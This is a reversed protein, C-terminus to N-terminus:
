VVGGKQLVKFQESGSTGEGAWQALVEPKNKAYWLYDKKLGPENGGATAKALDVPSAVESVIKLIQNVDTKKALAVFEETQTATMKKSECIAKLKDLEANQQTEKTQQVEVQLAMAKAKEELLSKYEEQTISIMEVGQQNNMNNVLKQTQTNFIKDYQELRATVNKAEVPVIMESDIVEDVLKIELAEKPSFWIDEGSLWESVIKETTLGTKKAFVEAFQQNTKELHSIHVKMEQPTANYLSVRASHIMLFGVESMYIKDCAMVAVAMMSACVGDIYANIVVSKENKIANYIAFGEAVGGGGSHIHLNILTAGSKKADSIYRIVQSASVDSWREIEGYLYINTTQNDVAKVEFLPSEKAM